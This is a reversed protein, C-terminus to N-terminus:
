KSKKVTKVKKTEKVKKVETDKVEETKVGLTLLINSSQKKYPHARGRSVPRWRKGFSGKNVIVEKIFLTNRDQDDNTEANSVASSLLKYFMHASKKPIFRLQNLAKEAQEGRIIDAIIQMKKYSIPASNLQAKM